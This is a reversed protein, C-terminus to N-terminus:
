HKKQFRTVVLTIMCASFIGALFNLVSFGTAIGFLTAFMSGVIFIRKTFLSQLLMFILPVVSLYSSTEFQVVCPILAYLVIIMTLLVPKDNPEHRFRFWLPNIILALLFMMIVSILRISFIEHDYLYSVVSSNAMSLFGNESITAHWDLVMTGAEIAGGSFPILLVWGSISVVLYPILTRWRHCVLLPVLLIMSAPKLLFLVGFGIGARVKHNKILQSLSVTFVTLSFLVTGGQSLEHWVLPAFAAITVAIQIESLMGQKPTFISRYSSAITTIIVYLSILQVVFFLAASHDFSFNTVPSFFMLFTPASFFPHIETYVTQSELSIIASYLQKFEVFPPKTVGIFILSGIMVMLLIIVKRIM